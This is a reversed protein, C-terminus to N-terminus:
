RATSRPAPAQGVGASDTVKGQYNIFPPVTQAHLSGLVLGLTTTLTATTKKM